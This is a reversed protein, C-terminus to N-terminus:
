ARKGLAGIAAKLVPALAGQEAGLLEGLDRVAREAVFWASAQQPTNPYPMGRANDIALRLDLGISMLADRRAQEGEAAWWLARVVGLLDRAAEVPFQEVRLPQM